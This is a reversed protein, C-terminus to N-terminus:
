QDGGSVQRARRAVQSTHENSTVYRSAWVHARPVEGPKRRAPSYGGPQNTFMLGGPTGGAPVTFGCVGCVYNGSHLHMTGANGCNPCVGPPATPTNGAGGPTKGSMPLAGSNGSGMPNGTDPLEQQQSNHPVTQFDTGRKVTSTGMDTDLYMLTSDTEHPRTGQVVSTQGTPTRIQDGKNLREIQTNLVTATKASYKPRYGGEQHQWPPCNAHDCAPPGIVKSWRARTQRRSRAKGEESLGVPEFTKDWRDKFHQFMRHQPGHEPNYADQPRRVTDPPGIVDALERSTFAPSAPEARPEPRPGQRDQQARNEYQRRQDFRERQFPEDFGGPQRYPAAGAGEFLDDLFSKPRAHGEPIFPLKETPIVPQQVGEGYAADKKVAERHPQRDFRHHTYEADDRDDQFTYMPKWSIGTIPISAGSRIPVEQEGHNLPHYVDGGANPNGQPHEEIDEREPIPTHLVIATGPKAYPTWHEQELHHNARPERPPEPFLAQQGPMPPAGRHLHEHAQQLTEPSDAQHALTVGHHEHLHETLAEGDDLHKGWSFDHDKHDGRNVDAIHDAMKEGFDEAVGSGLSWHMGLGYRHDGGSREGGLHNLLAMAREHQPQSEDHVYRHLDDPLNVGVGRHLEGNEAMDKLHPHLEDWDPEAFAESYAVHQGGSRHIQRRVRKQDTSPARQPRSRNGKMPEHFPEFSDRTDFSVGAREPREADSEPGDDPLFWFNDSLNDSV